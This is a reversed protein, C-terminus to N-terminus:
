PRIGTSSIPGNRAPSGSAAARDRAGDGAGALVRSKEDDGIVTYRLAQDVVGKSGRRLEEGARVGVLERQLDPLVIDAVQREAPLDHPM